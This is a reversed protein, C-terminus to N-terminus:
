KKRRSPSTIAVKNNTGAVAIGGRSARATTAAIPQRPNGPRGTLVYLVDVGLNDAAILYTGGPVQKDNEFYFQATKSAGCAERFEVQTLGLREREEKLRSGISGM